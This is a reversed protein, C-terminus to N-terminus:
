AASPALGHARLFKAIVDSTHAYVPLAIDMTHPWGAVRDYWYDVGLAKLKEALMDSQDPTVLTDLTGQIILTPPDDKDLHTIPSLQKYAEPAETYPKGIFGTITPHVQAEPTTLDTPGYLDVVAQIRSSVGPNGAEGQFEPVDSAYGAMMALHGGASGGIAAIRAPDGGYQAANTRLWRIAANTDQVCGPFKAEKAFRYGMSSVVYGLKAFDNCYIEYDRKDGGSWGGGHIFLLVPTPTAPKVTPYYVDLKLQREGLTGYVLDRQVTVGEPAPHPAALDAIPIRKLLFSLMLANTTPYGPPAPVVAEPVRELDPRPGPARGDFYYWWSFYAAAVFVVALLLRAAIRLFNKM